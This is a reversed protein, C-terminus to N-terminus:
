AEKRSIVKKPEMWKDVNGAEKENSDKDKHLNSLLDHQNISYNKNGGKINRKEYTKGQMKWEHLRDAEREQEHMDDEAKQLIEVPYQEQTDIRLSSLNKVLQTMVQVMQHYNANCLIQDHDMQKYHM